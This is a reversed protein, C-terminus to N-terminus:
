QNSYSTPLRHIIGENKREKPYDFGRKLSHDKM